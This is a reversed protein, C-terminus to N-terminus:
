RAGVVSCIESLVAVSGDDRRVHAEVTIPDGPWLPAAIEQQTYQLYAAIAQVADIAFVPKGDKHRLVLKM